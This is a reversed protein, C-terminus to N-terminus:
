CAEAPFKHQPAKLEQPRVVDPHAKALWDLLQPLRGNIGNVTSPPSKSAHEPPLLARCESRPLRGMREDAAALRRVIQLLLFFVM